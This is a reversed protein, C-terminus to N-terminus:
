GAFEEDEDVVEIKVKKNVREEEDDMEGDSVEKKTAPRGRKKGKVPTGQTTEAEEGDAGKKGVSGRKGATKPLAASGSKGPTKPSSGASGSKGAAEAAAKKMNQIRHSVAKPTCGEGIKLALHSLLEKSISINTFDLLGLMLQPTPTPPHLPASHPTSRVERDKEATWQVM